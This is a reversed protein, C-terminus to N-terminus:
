QMEHARCKCNLFHGAPRSCKGKCQRPESGGYTYTCTMKCREVKPKPVPAPAAAPETREESM